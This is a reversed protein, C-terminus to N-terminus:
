KETPKDQMEYLKASDIVSDCTECFLDIAHDAPKHIFRISHRVHKEWQGHRLNSVFKGIMEIDKKEM